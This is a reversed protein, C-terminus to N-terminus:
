VNQFFRDLDYLVSRTFTLTVGPCRRSSQFITYYYVTTKSFLVLLYPNTKKNKMLPECLLKSWTQRTLRVLVCCWSDIALCGVVIFLLIVNRLRIQFKIILKKVQQHRNWLKNASNYKWVWLHKHGSNYVYQSYM